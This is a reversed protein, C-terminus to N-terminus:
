REAVRVSQMSDMGQEENKREMKKAKLEAWERWCKYSCCVFLKGFYKRKYLWNDVDLCTFEKGCVPCYFVEANTM